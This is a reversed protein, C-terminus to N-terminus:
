LYETGINLNRIDLISILQNKSLLSCLKNAGITGIRNRNTSGENGVSLFCLSTSKAIADFM